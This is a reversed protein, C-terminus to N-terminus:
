DIALVRERKHREFYIALNAAITTKGVGGKLNAILLIPISDQLRKHYHEPQKIVPRRLWINNDDDFAVRVRNLTEILEANKAKLLWVDTNWADRIKRFVRSWLGNRWGFLLGAVTTISAILPYYAQAFDRLWEIVM